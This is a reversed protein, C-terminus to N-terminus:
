MDLSMSDRPTPEQKSLEPSAVLRRVHALQASRAPTTPARGFAGDVDQVGWRARYSAVAAAAERWARAQKREEPVPGILRLLHDPADAIDGEAVLDAQRRIAEKLEAARRISERQPAQVKAQLDSAVEVVAPGNFAPRRWVRSLSNIARRWSPETGKSPYGVSAEPRLDQEAEAQRNAGAPDDKAERTTLAIQRGLEDRERWLECLRDRQLQREDLRREDTAMQKAASCGLWGAVREVDPAPEDALHHEVEEDDPGSVYLHNSLRGRSLGVYGAERYLRDSGLVFSRDVTMGQAKHITLAYGHDLHGEELYWAPLERRAGENTEVVLSRDDRNVEVVTALTGNVVGLRHDNRLCVVQDGGAFAREDVVLEPGNVLGATLRRQRARANLEAVDRHRAAVMVAHEGASAATWWDDVLAERVDAGSEAVVVRGEANLV